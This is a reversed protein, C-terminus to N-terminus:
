FMCVIGFITAPLIVKLLMNIILKSEKLSEIKDINIKSMQDQAAYTFNTTEM